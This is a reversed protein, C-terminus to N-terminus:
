RSAAHRGARQAVAQRVQGVATVVVGILPRLVDPRLVHAQHSLSADVQDAEADEGPRPQLWSPVAKLETPQVAEHIQEVLAADGYVQGRGGGRRWGRERVPVWLHQRDRFVSEAEPWAAALVVTRAARSVAIRRAVKNGGEGFAVRPVGRKRHPVDAVLVAATHRGAPAVLRCTVEPAPQAA